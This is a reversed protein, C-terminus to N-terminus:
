HSLQARDFLPLQVRAWLGGFPSPQAEIHGGHAEAISQCIALGLGSGGVARSRSAEGRYLREFLRPLANDAVGPESDQIDIVVARDAVAV